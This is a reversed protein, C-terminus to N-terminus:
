DGKDTAVNQIVGSGIHVVAADIFHPMSLMGM